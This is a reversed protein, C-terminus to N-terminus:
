DGKLLVPIVSGVTALVLGVIGVTTNGQTLGYGAITSGATACAAALKTAWVPSPKNNNKISIRKGM